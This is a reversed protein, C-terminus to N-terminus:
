LADLLYGWNGHNRDANTNMKLVVGFMSITGLALCSYSGHEGKPRMSSASNPWFRIAGSLYHDGDIQIMIRIKTEM